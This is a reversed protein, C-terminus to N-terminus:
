TARRTAPSVIPTPFVTILYKPAYAAHPTVPALSTEKSVFGTKSSVFGTACIVM